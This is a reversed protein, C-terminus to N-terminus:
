VEMRTYFKKYQTLLVIGGGIALALVVALSILLITTIKISFSKIIAFIGISVSVILGFSLMVLMNSTNEKESKFVNPKALDCILGFLVLAVIYVIGIAFILAGLTWSIHGLCCVTIITAILSCCAFLIGVLSKAKLPTKIGNPNTKLIWFKDGEKSIFISVPSCIISIFLLVVLLITGAIIGSGIKEVAFDIIFKNCYVVMFPMAVSMGVYTFLTNSNRLLEKLELVFYAKFPRSKKSKTKIIRATTKQTLSSVFIKNYSTAGILVSILLIAFSLGLYIALNLMASQKLVVCALMCNALYKNECFWIARELVNVIHENKTLLIEAINFVLQMYFYFAVIVIATTVILSLIHKDKFFNLIYMAPILILNAVAFPFLPVFILIAIAIFYFKAAFGYLSLFVILAPLTLILNIFEIKVFCYIIKAFYIQSKKVPIYSLTEKKKFLFVRKLLISLSYFFLVCMLILLTFSLQGVVLADNGMIKFAFVFFLAFFTSFIVTLFYSLVQSVVKTKRKDGTARDLMFELKLLHLIKQM